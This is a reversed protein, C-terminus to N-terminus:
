PPIRSSSGRRTSSRRSTPSAAPPPSSRVPSPKSLWEFREKSMEAPLIAVSDCALLKSNFAGGRCYNGTSPWVAHHYTPTSSAPSWVRLLAASPRASRTAAPPSGSARWPSSAAPYALCARPSRSMTRSPSICAASSRPRTTGPSASCTSPTSTGCASTRDAQGQDERPHPGPNQM